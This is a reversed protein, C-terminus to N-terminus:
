KFFAGDTLPLLKTNKSRSRTGISVIERSVDDMDEESPQEYFGMPREVMIWGYDCEADEEFFFVLDQMSEETLKGKVFAALYPKCRKAKEKTLEGEGSFLHVGEPIDYKTRLKAAFQKEDEGEAIDTLADQANAIRM